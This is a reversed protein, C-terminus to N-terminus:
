RPRAPDPSDLTCTIKPPWIVWGISVHALGGPSVEFALENSHIFGMIAQLRHGGAPVDFRYTTGGTVIRGLLGADLLIKMSTGRTWHGRDPHSVILRGPAWPLGRRHPRLTAALRDGLEAVKEGFCADDLSFTPVGTLPALSAPLASSAPSAAGGVLVLHVPVEHAFAAEIELRVADQGAHLSPRVWRPGALVLLVDSQQVAALMDRMFNTGPAIDDVDLFVDERRTDPRSRLRDAMWGAYGETDDRRYSIFIRM